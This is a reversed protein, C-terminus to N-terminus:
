QSVESFNCIEQSFDKKKHPSCINAERGSSNMYNKKVEWPLDSSSGGGGTGFHTQALSDLCCSLDQKL